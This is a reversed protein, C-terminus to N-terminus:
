RLASAASTHNAGGPDPAAWGTRWISARSANSCCSAARRGHRGGDGAMIVQGRVRGGTVIWRSPAARPIGAATERAGPAALLPGNNWGAGPGAQAWGAATGSAPAKGQFWRQGCRGAWGLVGRVIFLAKTSSSTLRNWSCRRLVVPKGALATIDAGSRRQRGPARCASDAACCVTSSLRRACEM